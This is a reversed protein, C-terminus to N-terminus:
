FLKQLKPTTQYVKEVANAVSKQSLKGTCDRFKQKRFRFRGDLVALLM